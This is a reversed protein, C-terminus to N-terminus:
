RCSCGPSRRENYQRIYYNGLDGMAEVFARRARQAKEGAFHRAFLERFFWPLAPHVGYYGGGHSILLGIEAARDLLAIGQERTLGRVEDLAWEAQPNGM